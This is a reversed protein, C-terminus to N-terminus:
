SSGEAGSVDVRVVGRGPRNAVDVFDGCYDGVCSRAGGVARGLHRHVVHGRGDGTKVFGVGVEAEVDFNLLFPVLRWPFAVTM